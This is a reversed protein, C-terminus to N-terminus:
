EIVEIKRIYCTKDMSKFELYKMGDLDFGTGTSITTGNLKTTGVGDVISFEIENWANYSVNDINSFAQIDGGSKSTVCCKYHQNTTDQLISDGYCGIYFVNANTTLRIQIKVTFDGTLGLQLKDGTRVDIVGSGDYLTYTPTHTSSSGSVTAYYSNIDAGVCEDLFHDGFDNYFYITDGSERITSGDSNDILQGTVSVTENNIIAKNTPGYLRVNRYWEEFFYVTHNPVSVIEGNCDVGTLSALFKVSDGSQTIDENLQLTLDDFEADGTFVTYDLFCGQNSSEYIFRLHYVCVNEEATITFSAVAQDGTVSTLVTGENVICKITSQGIVPSTGARLAVSVSFEGDVPTVWDDSLFVLYTHTKKTLSYVPLHNGDITDSSTSVMGSDVMFDSATTPSVINGLCRVNEPVLILRDM